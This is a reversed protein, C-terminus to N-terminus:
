DSDSSDEESSDEPESEEPESEESNNAEEPESSDAESEETEVNNKRSLKKKQEKEKRIKNLRFTGGNLEYDGPNDEMKKKDGNSLEKPPDNKHKEIYGAIREEYYKNEIKALNTFRNYIKKNKRDKKSYKKWESKVIVSIDKIDEEELEQMLIPKRYESYLRSPTEKKPKKDFDYKVGARWESPIIKDLMFKYEEPLNSYVSAFEKDTFEPNIDRIFKSMSDKVSYLVIGQEKFEALKEGLDTNKKVMKNTIPNYIMNKKDSVKSVKSVKSSMKNHIINCIIALTIIKKFFKIM